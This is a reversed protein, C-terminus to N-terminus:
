QNMLQIEFNQVADRLSVTCSHESYRNLSLKQQVFDPLKDFVNMKWSVALKQNESFFPMLAYDPSSSKQPRKLVALPQTKMNKREFRMWRQSKVKFKRWEKQIVMRSELFIKKQQFSFAKQLGKVMTLYKLAASIAAPNGSLLSKQLQKEAKKRQHRLKQAKPNMRILQLLKEKLQLQIRAGTKYCLSYAQAHHFLGYILSLFLFIISILVPMVIVFGIM